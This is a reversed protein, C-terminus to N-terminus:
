DKIEFQEEVEWDPLIKLQKPHIIVKEAQTKRIVSGTTWKGNEDDDFIVKLVYVGPLLGTFDITEANTASLSLRLKKDRAVIGQENVLQIVYAQKKYFLMKLSLDGFEIKNQVSITLRASDNNIRYVDNFAATDAKLSYTNGEKLINEIEYNTISRWRGKVPEDNILTDTTSSLHLKKTNAYGTDMWSQFKLVLKKGPLLKGATLNNEFKKRPKRQNPKPLKVYVTDTKGSTVQTLLLALTDQLHRYYIGITDKELGKTTEHILLTDKPDLPYIKFVSRKNMELQSFGYYPSSIKKVFGKSSEEQFSRLSISTDGTLDFTKGLLAVQESEGDYITNKNKDSFAYVEYKGAPLNKFVFNGGAGTRSIYDPMKKFVLSDNTQEGTYLGVLYDGAAKNTFAETIVGNMTLTDISSGTSFTYDFDTLPNSENMDAIAKGFFFRYTTNPRLEEKKIRVRINKGEAEIEPQTEIRPSVILQNSLDRLQVFEDFTFVIEDQNFNLHKDPPSAQLLRPPTVDRPGGSLPGVQACSCFLLVMVPVLLIQRIHRTM